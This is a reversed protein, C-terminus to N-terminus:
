NKKRIEDVLEALAYRIAQEKSTVEEIMDKIYEMNEHDVPSFVFPQAKRGQEKQKARYRRQAERIQMKRDDSTM